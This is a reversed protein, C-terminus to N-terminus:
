GVELDLVARSTFAAIRGVPFGDLDGRGLLQGERRGLRDFILQVASKQTPATPRPPAGDGM